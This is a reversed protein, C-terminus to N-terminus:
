WPLPMFWMNQVLQMNKFTGYIHLPNIQIINIIIIIIYYYNIIGGIIILFVM